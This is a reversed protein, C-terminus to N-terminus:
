EYSGTANTSQHPEIAEALGAKHPYHTHNECMRMWTLLLPLSNSRAM